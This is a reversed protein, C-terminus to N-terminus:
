TSLPLPKRVAVAGDLVVLLSFLTRIAARPLIAKSSTMRGRGTTTRRAFRGVTGPRNPALM